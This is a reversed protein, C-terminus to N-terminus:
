ALVSALLAYGTTIEFNSSFREDYRESALATSSLLFVVLFFLRM